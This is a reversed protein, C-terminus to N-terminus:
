KFEVDTATFIFDILENKHLLVHIEYGDNTRYIEDYLWWAGHLQTDQKLITSNKITIQSFSTFGGTEIKLVIDKGKKRCSIVTSDHLKFTEAFAPEGNPFSKRYDKWYAKIASEVARENTKCYTAIEKKIDTSARNLALVRIDAIKQLIEDPLNRKLHKVNHRFEKKFNKKEQEPDFPPIIEFNLRAQEQMEFSEKKVEEIEEQELPSGKAYEFFDKQLRLWAKEESKYLKKFYYSSFVEACKSVKLPLHYGAKQMTEYWEKTMYKM